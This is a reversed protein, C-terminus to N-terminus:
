VHGAQRMREMALTKADKWGRVPEPENDATGRGLSPGPASRPAPASAGGGGNMAGAQLAANLAELGTMDEGGANVLQAGGQGNIRLFDAVGKAVAQPDNGYKLALTLIDSAAETELPNEADHGTIKAQRMLNTLETSIRQTETDIATQEDRQQSRTEFEELRAELAAIQADRPDDSTAAAAAAAEGGPEDDDGFFGFADGVQDWWEAFREQRAEYAEETEGQGREATLGYFELLGGLATGGHEDAELLPSLRDMFPEVGAYRERHQTLTPTIRDFETQLM